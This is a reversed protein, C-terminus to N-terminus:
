VNKGVGGSSILQLQQWVPVLSTAAFFGSGAAAPVGIGPYASDGVALLGEVGTGPGPSLTAGYLNARTMDVAPGYTGQHRWLFRRQTLPTGVMEVEVAQRINPLM